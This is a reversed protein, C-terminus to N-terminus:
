QASGSDQNSSCLPIRLSCCASGPRFIFGWRLEEVSLCFPPSYALSDATFPQCFSPTSQLSAQGSPEEWPGLTHGPLWTAWSDFALFWSTSSLGGGTRVGGLAQTKGLCCWVKGASDLREEFAGQPTM